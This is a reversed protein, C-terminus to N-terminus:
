GWSSTLTHRSGAPCGKQRQSPPQAPKAASTAISPVAGANRNASQGAMTLVAPRPISDRWARGGRDAGVSCVPTDRGRSTARRRAPSSCQFSPLAWRFARGVKPPRPSPPLQPGDHAHPYLGEVRERRNPVIGSGRCHAAHTAAILYIASARWAASTLFTPGHDAIYTPCSTSNVARERTMRRQWGTWVLTRTCHVLMMVLSSCMDSLLFM